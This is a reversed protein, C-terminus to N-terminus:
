LIKLTTSVNNINKNKFLFMIILNNRISNNPNYLGMNEIIYEKNFVLNEVNIKHVKNDFHKLEFTYSGNDLDYKDIYKIYLLNYNDIIRYGRMDKPIINIYINGPKRREKEDSMKHFIISKYKCNFKLNVEKDLIKEGFCTECKLSKNEINFGIGQCTNCKRKRKISITKEVNHYIDFLEIKANINLSETKDINPKSEEYHKSMIIMEKLLNTTINEMNLNMFFDKFMKGKNFLGNLDININSTFENYKGNCKILTSYAQAIEKFKKEAELKNEKNRDPHYKLALKKYSSKIEELTANNTLGLVKYPNYDNM